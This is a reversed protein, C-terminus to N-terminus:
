REKERELEQINPNGPQECNLNQDNPGSFKGGFGSKGMKDMSGLMSKRLIIGGAGIYTMIKNKNTQKKSQSNKEGLQGGLLSLNTQNYEDCTSDKFIYYTSHMHIRHGSFVHCTNYKVCTLIGTM